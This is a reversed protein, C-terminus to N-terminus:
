WASQIAPRKRPRQSVVSSFLARFVPYSGTLRWHGAQISAAPSSRAAKGWTTGAPVIMPSSSAENPAPRVGPVWITAPVVSPQAAKRAVPASLGPSPTVDSPVVSTSFSSQSLGIKAGRYPM